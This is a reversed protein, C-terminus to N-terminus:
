LEINTELKTKFNVKIKMAKKTKNFGLAYQYFEEDISLINGKFRIKIQENVLISDELVEFTNVNPHFHFFAICDEQPTKSLEDFISICKEKSQFKRTHLVGINSYGDHTAIVQNLSEKLYTIRARKAVRFGGWVQTQEYQGIKVTNHSATAREKQRIQNKEYTSTGTDVIIPKGGVYLEFNFTDSHAHGPQYDPGVQGVDIFLEYVGTKFIRYGSDKLYREEWTLGINKAYKFLQESTPAIGFTADNVMPVDGNKLTIAELWSLMEVARGKFFDVLGDSKWSNLTALKICDLLRKLLIQHYMPSLEFHAGDNLLQAKLEEKLIKSAQQYLKEDKFYYAGFFLSFGNELLHNGLLHYEINNLLIQYDTYLIQNVDSDNIDNKALFKIWNIGRLSIPYAEKGDRLSDDNKIYDKILLFGETLLINEQNLFDFYNLNYAWLKGYQDLNWDIAQHFQHPKNL